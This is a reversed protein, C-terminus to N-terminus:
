RRSAFDAILREIRALRAEQARQASVIHEVNSQQADRHSFPYGKALPRSGGVLAQLNARDVDTFGDDGNKIENARAVIWDIHNTIFPGPCATSRVQSHWGVVFGQQTVGPQNKEIPFAARPSEAAHHAAVRAISELAGNSTPWDPAGATNAVEVSVAWRDNAYFTSSPALNPNVIGVLEGNKEISYTPHSDRDNAGIMYDTVSAGGGNAQHHTWLGIVDSGQRSSGWGASVVRTGPAFTPM